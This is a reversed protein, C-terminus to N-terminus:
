RVIFGSWRPTTAEGLKPNLLRHHRGDERMVFLRPGQGNRTSTFVILRGNPAWSPEENHGQAQTL